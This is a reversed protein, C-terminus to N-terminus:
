RRPAMQTLAEKAVRRVEESPDDCAKTLYVEFAPEFYGLKCLEEICVARVMPHPDKQAARFVLIKVMDSSGNRGGCMARAAMARQSPAMGDQLAKIYPELEKMM